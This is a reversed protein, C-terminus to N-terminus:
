DKDLSINKELTVENGKEDYHILDFVPASLFVAAPDFGKGEDRIVFRAKESHIVSRVTIWRGRYEEMEARAQLLTFYNKEELAKNKEDESIELNGHEMANIVMERVGGTILDLDSSCV